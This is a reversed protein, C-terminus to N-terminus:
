FDDMEVDGGGLKTGALQSTVSDAENRKAKLASRTRVSSRFDPEEKAEEILQLKRKTQKRSKKVKQKPSASFDSDAGNETAEKDVAEHLQSQELQRNEEIADDIESLVLADDSDSSLENLEYVLEEEREKAQERRLKAKKLKKQLVEQKPRALRNTNKITKDDHQPHGTFFDDDNSVLEDDSEEQKKPRRWQWSREFIEDHPIFIGM